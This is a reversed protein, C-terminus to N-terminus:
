SPYVTSIRTSRPLCQIIYHAPPFYHCIIMRWWGSFTRKALENSSRVPPNTIPEDFNNSIKRFRSCFRANDIVDRVLVRAVQFGRNTGYSQKARLPLKSFISSVHACYHAVIFGSCRPMAGGTESPREKNPFASIGSIYRGGKARGGCGSVVGKLSKEAVKVNRGVVISLAVFFLMPVLILFAKVRGM